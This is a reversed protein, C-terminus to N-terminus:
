WAEAKAFNLCEVPGLNYSSTVPISETISLRFFTIKNYGDPTSPSFAGGVEGHLLEDTLKAGCSCHNMLYPPEAADQQDLFYSPLKDRLLDTLVQPVTRVFNLSHFEKITYSEEADRFGSCGLTYVPILRRCEPCREPTRLV